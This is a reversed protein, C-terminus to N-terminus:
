RFILDSKVLDEGAMDQFVEETILKTPDFRVVALDVWSDAQELLERKKKSMMLSVKRKKLLTIFVVVAIPLGVLPAVVKLEM